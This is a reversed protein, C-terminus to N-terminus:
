SKLKKLIWRMSSEGISFEECTNYRAQVKSKTISFGKARLQEVENIYFDYILKYDIWNIAVVGKMLLDNFYPLKELEKILDYAVM